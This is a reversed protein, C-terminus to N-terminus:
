APTYTINGPTSFFNNLSAATGTFIRYNPTSSPDLSVGGLNGSAIRLYGDSISLIAQLSGSGSDVDSFTTATFTLNGTTDEILDFTAPPNLLPADNIAEVAHSIVVTGASYPTTGGRTSADILGGSMLSTSSDVLVVDITPATGNFDPAPVFRLWDSSLLSLASSSGSVTPLEIWSVGENTSYQWIGQSPDDNYATIAIGEFADATSGGEVVDTADSYSSAVFSAM